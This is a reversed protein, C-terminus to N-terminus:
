EKGKPAQAVQVKPKQTLAFASSNLFKEVYKALEVNSLMTEGELTVVKTKLKM